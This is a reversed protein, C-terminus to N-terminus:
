LTRQEMELVTKYCVEITELLGHNINSQLFQDFRPFQDLSGQYFILLICLWHGRILCAVPAPPTFLFRAITFHMLIIAHKYMALINQVSQGILPCSHQSRVQSQNAAQRETDPWVANSVRRSPSQFSVTSHCLIQINRQLCCAVFWVIQINSCYNNSSIGSRKGKKRSQTPVLTGAAPGTWPLQEQKRRAEEWRGSSSSVADTSSKRRNTVNRESQLLRWGSSSGPGIRKEYGRGDGRIYSRRQGAEPTSSHEQHSDMQVIWLRGWCMPEGGALPEETESSGELLLDRQHWSHLKQSHLTRTFEQLTTHWGTHKHQKRQFYLLNSNHTM